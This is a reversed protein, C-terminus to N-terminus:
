LAADVFRLLDGMNPQYAYQFGPHVRVLSPAKAPSCPSACVYGRWEVGVQQCAGRVWQSSFNLPQIEVVRAGPPMFVVNALAAGSPAVVVEADRMLAVQEMVGLKEPRVITFGRRRLAWEFRWEGVMHRNVQGRRSFYVRKARRVGAPLPTERGRAGLEASLGDTRHLFHNMSDAYIVRGLRVIPESFEVVKLGPFCVTILDRQWPELKPAVVPTDELLGAKQLARLTTLGDLLYHGYNFLGGWPMFVAGSELYPADEPGTFDLDGSFGPTIRFTPYGHRVEYSAADFVEGNVDVIVGHAPVVWSEGAACLQPPVTPAATTMDGGWWAGAEPGALIEPARPHSPPTLETVVRAREGAAFRARFTAFDVEPLVELEHVVRVPTPASM